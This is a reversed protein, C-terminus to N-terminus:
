HAFATFADDARGEDAGVGGKEMRREKGSDKDSDREGEEEDTTEEKGNTQEFYKKSGLLVGDEEGWREIEEEREREKEM